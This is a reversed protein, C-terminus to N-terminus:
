IINSASKLFLLIQNLIQSIVALGIFLAANETDNVLVKEGAAISQKVAYGRKIKNSFDENFSYKLKTGGIIRLSGVNINFDLINPLKPTVAVWGAKKWLVKKFTNNNTTKILTSIDTVNHDSDILSYEYYAPSTISLPSLIYEDGPYTIWNNEGGDGILITQKNDESFKEYTYIGGSDATDTINIVFTAPTGASSSLEAPTPYSGVQVRDEIPNYSIIYLIGAYEQVGVPVYGEPLRCNRLPYNGKDNQLSLENDDYTVLTGNLCDTLAKPPMNIPNLDRIMGEDFTNVAERKM